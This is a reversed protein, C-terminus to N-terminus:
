TTFFLAKGQNRVIVEYFGGSPWLFRSVKRQPKEERPFFITILEVLILYFDFALGDALVGVQM